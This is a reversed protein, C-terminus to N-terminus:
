QNNWQEETATAFIASTAEANSLGATTLLDLVAARYAALSAFRKPAIARRHIRGHVVEGDVEAVVRGAVSIGSETSNIRIVRNGKTIQFM